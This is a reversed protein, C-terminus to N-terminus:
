LAGTAKLATVTAQVANAVQGLLVHPKDKVIKLYAHETVWVFRDLGNPLSSDKEANLILARILWAADDIEAEVIDAAVAAVPEAFPGLGPILDVFVPALYRTLITQM